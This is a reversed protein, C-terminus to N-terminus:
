RRQESTNQFFPIRDLSGNHWAIQRLNEDPVTRQHTTKLKTSQSVLGRGCKTENQNQITAEGLLMSLSGALRVIVNQRQGPRRRIAFRPLIARAISKLDARSPRGKGEDYVAPKCSLPKRRITLNRRGARGRWRRCCARGRWARSEDEVFPILVSGAGTKGRLKQSHVCLRAAIFIGGSYTRSSRGMVTPGPSTASANRLALGPKDGRAIETKQSLFHSVSTRIHRPFSKDTRSQM